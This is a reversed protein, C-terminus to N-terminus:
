RSIFRYMTVLTGPENARLIRSAKSVPFATFGSTTRLAFVRRGGMIAWGWRGGHNRILTEGFYAGLDFILRGRLEEVKDDSPGAPLMAWLGLGLEEAVEISADSLDLVVGLDRAQRAYRGARIAMERAATYDRKFPVAGGSPGQGTESGSAV